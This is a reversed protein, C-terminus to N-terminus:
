CLRLTPDPWTGATTCIDKLYDILNWDFANKSNIKRKVQGEITAAILASLQENNLAQTAPAAVEM